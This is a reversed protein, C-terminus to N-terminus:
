QSMEQYFWYRLANRGVQDFPRDVQRMMSLESPRHFRYTCHNAGLYTWITGGALSPRGLLRHWKTQRAKMQEANYISINAYRTPEQTQNCRSSGEYEDGLRGISHGMEHLGLRASWRTWATWAAVGNWYAVGGYRNDNGVANVYDADRASRAFEWAKTTNLQLWGNREWGMNMATDKEIGRAEDDIGSDRSVVDVMWVNFQKRHVSFPPEQAMQNWLERMRDRYRPLEARTFGDGVFVLDLQNASPGNVEIAHVNGKPPKPKDPKDPRPKAKPFLLSLIQVIPDSVLKGEPTMLDIEDPTHAYDANPDPGHAMAPTSLGLMLAMAAIVVLLRKM